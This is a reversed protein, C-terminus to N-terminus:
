SVLDLTHYSQVNKPLDHGHRGLVQSVIAPDSVVLGPLGLINIRYVTGYRGAWSSLTRHFSPSLLELLHGVIPRSPPGRLQQWATNGKSRAKLVTYIVTAVTASVACWCLTTLLM